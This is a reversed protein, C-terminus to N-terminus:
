LLKTGLDSLINALMLAATKTNNVKVSCDNEITNIHDLIYQKASTVLTETHAQTATFDEALLQYHTNLATSMTELKTILAALATAADALVTSGLVESTTLIAQRVDRADQILTAQNGM